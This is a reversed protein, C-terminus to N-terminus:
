FNNYLVNRFGQILQGPVQGQVHEKIQFDQEFQNVAGVAPFYGLDVRSDIAKLGNLHPVPVYRAPWTNPPDRKHQLASLLSEIFSPIRQQSYGAIYKNSGIFHSVINQPSIANDGVYWSFGSLYRRYLVWSGDEGAPTLYPALNLTDLHVAIISLSM